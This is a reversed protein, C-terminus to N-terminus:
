KKHYVQQVEALEVRTQTLTTEIVTGSLGAQGLIEDTMTWSQDECPLGKGLSTAIWCAVHLVASMVSRDPDQLPDFYNLLTDRMAAPFSWEMLVLNIVAEESLGFTALEWARTAVFTSKDPLPRVGYKRSATAIEQLILRGIPRMMGMTYGIKEDEDVHQALCSAALAVCLSNQWLTEASVRYLPMSRTFMQRSVTTGVLRQVESLGVRGIAEEITSVTEGRKNAASNSLQIVGASLGTDLRVLDIIQNLDCDPDQLAKQMRAFMRASSPVSKAAALIYSSSVQILPDPM